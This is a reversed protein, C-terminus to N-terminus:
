FTVLFPLAVGETRAFFEDKYLLSPPDRKSDGDVRQLTFDIFNLDNEVEV